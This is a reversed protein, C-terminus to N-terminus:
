NNWLGILPGPVLKYLMIWLKNLSIFGLVCMSGAALEARISFLSSLLVRLMYTYVSIVYLVLEYAYLLRLSLISLTYTYFLM